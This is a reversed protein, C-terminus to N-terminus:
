FSHLHHFMSKTRTVKNNSNISKLQMMWVGAIQRAKKFKSMTAVFECFLLERSQNLLKRICPSGHLKPADPLCLASQAVASSFHHILSCGAFRIQLTTQLYINSFAKPTTKTEQERFRQLICKWYKHRKRNIQCPVFYFIIYYKILAYTNVSRHFNKM